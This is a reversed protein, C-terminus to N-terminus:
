KTQENNEGGPIDIYKEGTKKIIARNGTLQVLGDTFDDDGGQKVCVTFEVKDTYVSDEVIYDALFYQVKGSLTYDCKVSYIACLRRIIPCADAIAAAACKGYAHVLGGTGLLTGGFYRTVVVATDTLGPRHICDLVPMGATGSPEGDDTYRQMNNESVAYAYVNHTADAYKKKIENIFAIAEAETKVPVANGIFKSKKETFFSEGHRKVTKYESKSNNM